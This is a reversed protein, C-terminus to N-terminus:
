EAVSTSSGARTRDRRADGAELNWTSFIRDPIEPRVDYRETVVRTESKRVPSKVTILFPIFLGEVPRVSAVDVELRKVVRDDKYFDTFLIIGREEEVCSVMRQYESEFPPKARQDIMQCPRGAHEGEGLSAVEYDEVRKPEVDEYSLDTGFFADARQSASLRKTRGMSPLYVFLEDSGSENELILVSTRRVQKPKTFRLLAKGPRVSQRRTIQLSRSMGQGGRLSTVLRLEQIYDEDYLNRYARPLVQRAGLPPKSDVGIEQALAPPGVASFMLATIIALLLSATEFSSM